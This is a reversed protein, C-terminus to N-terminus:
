NEPRPLWHRPFWALYFLLFIIGGTLISTGLPREDLMLCPMIMALALFRPPLGRAATNLFVFISALVASALPIAQYRYSEVGETALFSANYNGLGYARQM